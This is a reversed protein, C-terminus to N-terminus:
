QFVQHFITRWQALDDHVMQPPILDV